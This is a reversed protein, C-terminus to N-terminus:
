FVGYSGQLWLQKINREIVKGKFMQLLRQKVGKISHITCAVNAGSLMELKLFLLTLLQINPSEEM